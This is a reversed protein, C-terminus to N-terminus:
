EISILGLRAAVLLTVMSKGDVLDGKRILSFCEAAPILVPVIREDAELSQGVPTLGTALYAGMFEDTMGPSTHFRTLPTLTAAKYGTEEMLERGACALPDEGPELTGAPLELLWRECSPRYNRIFVVTPPTGQSELLPLIVVSGRHRIIERTIERGDSGALTLLEFDFKAGKRLLTRSVRPNRKPDDPHSM